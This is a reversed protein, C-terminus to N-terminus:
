KKRGVIHFVHWQKAEGTVITGLREDEAFCVMEFQAFRAKAQDITHFTMEKKTAWQDRNGFLTGAFIGGKELSTVISQWLIDFHSPHCFPLSYHANILSSAPMEGVDEFCLPVVEVLGAWGPLLLSQTWTVGDPEGDMAWVRFGAQLLALSDRGNGCGLDLALPKGAVDGFAAIGQQVTDSPPSYQHHKYYNSWPM